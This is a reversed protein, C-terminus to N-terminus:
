PLILKEKMNPHSAKDIAIQVQLLTEDIWQRQEHVSLANTILRIVNTVLTYTVTAMLILIIVPAAVAAATVVYVSAATIAAMFIVDFFTLLSKYTPQSSLRKRNEAFQARKKLLDTRVQLDLRSNQLTQDIATLIKKSRQELSDRNSTSTVEQITQALTFGMSNIVLLGPAGILASLTSLGLSTLAVKDIYGKQQLNQKMELLQRQLELLDKQSKQMSSSETSLTPTARSNSYAASSNAAWTSPTYLTQFTFVAAIVLNWRM